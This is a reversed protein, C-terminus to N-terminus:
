AAKKHLLATAKAQQSEPLHVIQEQLLNTIMKDNSSLLKSFLKFRLPEKITKIKQALKLKTENKSHQLLKDIASFQQPTTLNFNAKVHIPFLADDPIIYDILQTKINEDFDSNTIFQLARIERHEEPLFRVADVLGLLIDDCNPVKNQLALKYLKDWEKQDGIGTKKDVVKNHVWHATKNNALITSKISISGYDILYDNILNYKAKDGLDNYQFGHQQEDIIANPKDTEKNIFQIIMYNNKLDSFYFKAYQSHKFHKNIYIARNSEILPGHYNNRSMEEKDYNHYSKIVYKKGAVEFKYGCGHLGIGLYDIKLPTNNDIINHKVLTEKLYNSATDLREQLLPILSDPNDKYDYYYKIATDCDLMLANSAAAFGTYIDRIDKARSEKPITNIWEEPLNGVIGSKTLKKEIETTLAYLKGSLAKTLGTFGITFPKQKRLTNTSNTFTDM